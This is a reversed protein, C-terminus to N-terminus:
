ADPILLERVRLRTESPARKLGHRLSVPCVDLRRLAPVSSLEDAPGRNGPLRYDAALLRKKGPFFRAPCSKILEYLGAEESNGSQPGCRLFAHRFAKLFSGCRKVEALMERLSGPMENPELLESRM